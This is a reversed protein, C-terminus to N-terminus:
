WYLQHQLFHSETGTLRPVQTYRPATGAPPVLLIVTQGAYSQCSRNAQKDWCIRYEYNVNTIKKVLHKTKIEFFLCYKWLM